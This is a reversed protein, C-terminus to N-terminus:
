EKIILNIKNIRGSVLEGTEYATDDNSMKKHTARVYYSQTKLSKFNAVGKKDTVMEAVANEDEEYDDDNAYLKVTAGSVVNGINDLVTLRLNTPLLQKSSTFSFCMVVAIFLFFISTKKM